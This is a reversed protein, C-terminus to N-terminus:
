TGDHEVAKGYDKGLNEAMHRHHLAHLEHRRFKQGDIHPHCKHCLKYKTGPDTDNHKVELEFHGIRPCGKSHCNIKRYGTVAGAVVAAVLTAEGLDSGFGSWFGYYPQNVCPATGCM